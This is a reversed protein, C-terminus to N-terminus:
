LRTDCYLCKPVTGGRVYQKLGTEAQMICRANRCLKRDATETGKPLLRGASNKEDLLKLILAM